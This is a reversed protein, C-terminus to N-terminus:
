SSKKIRNETSVFPKRKMQMNSPRLFGKNYLNAIQNLWFAPIRKPFFKKTYFIDYAKKLDEWQKCGNTQKFRAVDILKIKKEPTLIINRLHVDSPTLGAKRAELLAEDAEAIYSEKIRIGKTICEFFTFGKIYDIVIYNKGSGYLKPYHSNGQLQQYIEAEEQAIHEHPPFFVKLAKNTNKIKFVVASRGAGIQELRSDKNKVSIKNKKIKFIVSNALDDYPNM